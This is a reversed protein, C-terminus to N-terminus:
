GAIRQRFDARMAEFAERERALEAERAALHAEVQTLGKARADVDAERRLVADLKSRAAAQRQEADASLRAAERASADALERAKTAEEALERHSRSAAALQELATRTAAPDACAAILSIALSAVNDAVPAAIIM